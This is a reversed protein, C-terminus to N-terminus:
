LPATLRYSGKPIAMEFRAGSGPEGTERITIGTLALIERVLFLGLGTNKGYGREFIKEKEYAPIGVGNDEWFITLGDSSKSAQVMVRTTREGHRITNDMLNSFVKPLMPDAYIEIGRIEASLLVASSKCQALLIELDQWVPASAGLDQYAKTFEIQEAIIQSVSDIKALFEAVVPDSIKMAALQIYGQLATLQNAVDHRTISSLLKIKRNAERIAQEARKQETFDRGVSQYEIVNGPEDFIARDNWRQWRIEKNEMIIRHEITAVPRGPILSAFHHRVADRDGQPIEPTFKHGIIEDRSRGFYRCYADNVFVHVGDPTFRCIFETQDEVVNRYREESERLAQEARKRDSIDRVFVLAGNKGEYMFPVSSVGVDFETGDLRLYVEELVQVPAREDYLQHVRNRIIDHFRPHILDMFPTGVLQTSSSAGFLRIAAQNLYVFKWEAGIYIADPAGEIVRRFTEESERLAQEARKRGTIDRDIGHYGLFSGDKAFRPVGSTELVVVTGDKRICGNELASIPIRSEVCLNFESAVRPIEDYPMFDFPTKGIMEEPEYGLMERVKPSVYTYIGAADVEWIFDSTTEVLARFKEESETLLIEMWKHETIDRDIGRYGTLNGENDLIPVGSTELIVIRGDKRLSRSELKEIPKKGRACDRFIGAVREAEGKPMLSFLTKGIIEGPEYGLINRANPSVYTFTGTGDVEWVLDSMSEVLNRYRKESEQLGEEVWKRKTIDRDIGRYGSFSGDNAYRPVGSTELIVASGDKRLNKNELASLPLRSKVCRNFEVAVRLSEESPMFDFPTKGIMEEPEYGLMERVKPSVYTYIGAADVEWIFDSTTEVLARYKEESERLSEGRRALEDYQGRLEEESATIQEYAVRLEDLARRHDTIDVALGELGTIKGGRDYAARVNVSAWLVSRDRRYMAIKFDAVAGQKRLIRFLEDRLDPYVYISRIDSVCRIVEEPSDYGLLRAFAPNATAISGDTRTQFFAVSTNEFIGRYKEESERLADEAQKRDSIDVIIGRFGTLEGEKYVPDAYILAPFTSGDKRKFTYELHEYPEKRIIKRINEAVRDHQSPAIISLANFGLAVDDPTFGLQTYAQNNVFTIRFGPDMEFVIQPLLEALERFKAESERIRQESRALEDYQGRLEEEAATIQEYAARIEAEARKRETIDRDAGRFGIMEGNRNFIPISNSELYRYSNDKHRWRIVRNRWGCRDRVCSTFLERVEEQDEPHMLNFADISVIEEPYYGLISAIAPNSYTHRGQLDLEWIWESTTDVITRFKEEIKARDQQAQIIEDLQARLEEESATIQEYAAKLEEQARRRAIAQRIKHMLEAFQAQPDGGKQLYFDAGNNIAEIVVEERGRGTFLIFPITGFRSRVEKLFAIGDMDPMQYDSIIADYSPFVNSNLADRASTHIDVSFEKTKELFLKAIELLGPEDDVYLISYM